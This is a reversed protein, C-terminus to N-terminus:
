PCFFREVCEWRSSTTVFECAQPTSGTCDGDDLCLDSPTHCYYGALGGYDGCGGLTPSCYGRPGCDADVRCNGAICVNAGAGGRTALRCECPGGLSCEADRTCVDYSCRCGDRQNGVCRGNVGAACDGDVACAPSPFGGPDCTSAPREAPCATAVARHRAPARGAEPADVAPRDLAPADTVPVDVGADPGVTVSSGCGALAAVFVLAARPHM